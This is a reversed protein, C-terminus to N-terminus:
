DWSALMVMDSLQKRARGNTKAGLIQGYEAFSIAM